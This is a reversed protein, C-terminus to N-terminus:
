DVSVLESEVVGDASVGKIVGFGEVMFYRFGDPATVETANSFTKYQTEVTVNVGTITRILMEDGLGVNFAKGLEVPYVLAVDYESYPYGITFYDRNDLELYFYLSDDIEVTWLFGYALGGQPPVEEFRHVASTGDAMRSSYTKTKYKQYSRPIVAANKFKPELAHALGFAFNAPHHVCWGSNESCCEETGRLEERKIKDALFYFKIM